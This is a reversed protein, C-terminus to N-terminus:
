ANHACRCGEFVMSYATADMYFAVGCNLYWYRKCWTRGRNRRGRLTTALAAFGGLFYMASSYTQVHADCGSTQEAAYVLLLMSSPTLTLTFTSCLLPLLLHPLSLSPQGNWGTMHGPFSPYFKQAFWQGYSNNASFYMWAFRMRWRYAGREQGEEFTCKEVTM